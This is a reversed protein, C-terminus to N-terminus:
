GTVEAVAERWVAAAAEQIEQGHEDIAPRLFPHAPVHGGGKLAHGMEVFRGYFAKETPGVDANAVGGTGKVNMEINDRLTGTRVPANEKAHTRVVDAGARAAKRTVATLREGLALLKAQLEVDGVVTVRIENAM